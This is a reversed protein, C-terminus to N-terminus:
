LTGREISCSIPCAVEIGRLINQHRLGAQGTPGTASDSKLNVAGIHMAM